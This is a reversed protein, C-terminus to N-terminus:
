WKRRRAIISCATVCLELGAFDFRLLSAFALVLDTVVLL